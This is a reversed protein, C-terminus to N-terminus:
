GRSPNGLAGAPTERALLREAYWAAFRAVSPELYSFRGPKAFPSQLGAHQQTLAPIDEDIAVDFREYYHEAREAFDPLGMTADPFCVTQAVHCRDPGDPYVEYMWLSDAGAAFVVNPFLWSYRVGNRERERLGDLIPFQLHRDEDLLGGTGETLGFQTAYAGTAADPEDPEQYNQDISDPHVYPLHYYENFVEAFAKWNCAVVFERRRAMRLDALPWPNHREAFDGLWEALTPPAPDVSVFAFGHSEAAVFETLGHDAADFGPTRQMSPAGVLRGDLAYTWFHFPCRFRSCAGEGVMIQSGRHSCSNAFARLTGHEDRVIVVPIGGIDTAAYDGTASWRESRGVGVWGSRFVADREHEFLDHDVYWAPPITSAESPAARCNHLGAIATSRVSM